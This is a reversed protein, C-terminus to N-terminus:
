ALRRKQGSATKPAGLDSMGLAPLPPLRVFGGLAIEKISGGAVWPFSISFLSMLTVHTVQGSAPLAVTDM